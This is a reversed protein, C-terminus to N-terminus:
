SEEELTRRLMDLYLRAVRPLRWQKLRILDLTAQGLEPHALPVSALGLAAAHPQVARRPLITAGAGSAAFARLVEFSNSSVVPTLTVNRSQSARELLRRVGFDRDPLALPLGDLDEMTMSTEGALPHGQSVVLLLPEALKAEHIIDPGPEACFTIGIECQKEQVAEIVQRAPLVRLEFSVASFAERFKAAARVPGSSVVSEVLAVRILGRSGKLEDLDTRLTDFDLVTAKAYEAVLAGAHTLEVGGLSRNFLAAGMLHELIAIQRSVSSPALGLKESAKRISGAQVAEHFARLPGPFM